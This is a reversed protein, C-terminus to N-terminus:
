YSVINKSLTYKSCFPLLLSLSFIVLFGLLYLVFISVAAVSGFAALPHTDKFTKVTGEIHSMHNYSIYGLATVSFGVFMSLPYALTMSLLIILAILFYNTQYYLLNNVVRNGWKELDGFNPLQFRATDAIFDHLNRVPALDARLESLKDM